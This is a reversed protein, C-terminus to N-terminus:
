PLWEQTSTTQSTPALGDATSRRAPSPPPPSPATRIRRPETGYARRALPGPLRPEASPRVAASEPSTSSPTRADSTAPGAPSIVAPGRTPTLLAASVEQRNQSVPSGLTLRNERDGLAPAYPNLDTRLLDSTAPSSFSSSSAYRRECRRCTFCVSSPSVSASARRATSGDPHVISPSILWRVRSTSRKQNRATNAPSCTAKHWPSSAQRTAGSAVIADTTADYSASHTRASATMSRSGSSAGTAHHGSSHPGLPTCPRRSPTSCTIASVAVRAPWRSATLSSM